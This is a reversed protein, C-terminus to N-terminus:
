GTGTMNVLSISVMWGLSNVFESYDDSGVENNLLQLEDTQGQGVYIVAAKFLERPTKKDLGKIDRTLSASKNLM